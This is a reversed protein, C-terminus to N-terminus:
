NLIEYLEKDIQKFNLKKLLKVSNINKEDVQAYIRKKQLVRFTYDIIASCVETAYGQNQYEEKIAYGLEVTDPDNRYDDDERRSDHEIGGRSEVGARGILERTEKHFVLWMGYEYFGYVKEIYNAEYAEEKERDYLPEMYDTMHEGEYLQYLADMDSMSFERIVTRPTEMIYLPIGMVRHHVKWLYSFDVSEFSLLIWNNELQHSLGAEYGIVPIRENRFYDILEQDQCIAVCFLGSLGKVDAETKVYDRLQELEDERLLKAQQNVRKKHEEAAESSLQFEGDVKSVNFLRFGDRQCKALFRDLYSRETDNLLEGDIQLYLIKEM